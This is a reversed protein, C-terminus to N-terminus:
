LRALDLAPHVRFETPSCELVRRTVLLEMNEPRNLDFAKSSQLSQIAGLHVAGLGHLYSVGLQHVATLVHEKAIREGGAIYAEEGADRALAILDRLLGGSADCILSREEDGLMSLVDRRELVLRLQTRGSGGPRLAPLHHVRDFRGVLSRGPGFLVSIPAASIVSVGLQKMLRFDQYVVEWFRDVVALRDLGDFIAVPDYWRRCSAVSQDLPDQIQTLDRQLPPFPLNPKGHTGYAFELIQDFWDKLPPMEGEEAANRDRLLAAGLELAFGTVIAGANVSALDTMAAVDIYLPLTKSQEKLRKETLLLVTTKGSGVGGVVLQQSGPELDARAALHQHVSEHLDELVVGSEILELAPAAPSFHRMYARFRERRSLPPSVVDQLHNPM